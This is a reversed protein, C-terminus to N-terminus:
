RCPNPYGLDRKETLEHAYESCKAGPHPGLALQRGTEDNLPSREYVRYRTVAEIDQYTVRQVLPLYTEADVTIEIQEDDVKESLLTYARRGDVTTTGTERMRGQKELKRLQAGPDTFPGLGDLGGGGSAFGGESVTNSNADWTLTAGSRGSPRRKGAFEELLKGRQGDRAEFTKRRLRGDSTYWAEMVFDYRDEGPGRVTAEEVVHYVGGRTTAAVARDVVAPGPSDSGNLNIAVLAALAACVVGALALARRRPRPKTAPQEPTALLRALLADAERQEDPTLAERDRVPDAVALREMLEDHRRM